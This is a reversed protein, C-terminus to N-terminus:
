CPALRAPKGPVFSSGQTDQEAISLVARAGAPPPSQVHGSTQLLDTASIQQSESSIGAKKHM